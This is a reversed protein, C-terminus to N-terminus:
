ARALLNSDLILYGLFLLFLLIVTRLMRFKFIEYGGFKKSLVASIVIYVSSVAVFAYVQGYELFAIFVAYIIISLVLFISVWKILLRDNEHIAVQMMNPMTSAIVQGFLIYLAVRMDIGGPVIYSSYLLILGGGMVCIILDIITLKSFGAVKKSSLIGSGDIYRKAELVKLVSQVPVFLFSGVLLALDVSILVKGQETTTLFFVARTIYFMFFSSLLFRLNGYRDLSSLFEFIFGIELAIRKGNAIRLIVVWALLCYFINEIIENPSSFYASLIIISSRIAKDVVNLGIFFKIYEGNSRKMNYHLIPYGFLAGISIGELYVSWIEDKVYESSSFVVVSLIILIIFAADEVKQKDQEKVRVCSSDWGILVLVGSVLATNLVVRIHVLEDTTLWSALLAFVLLNSIASFGTTIVGLLGLAHLNM